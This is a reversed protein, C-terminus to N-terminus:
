DQTLVKKSSVSTKETAARSTDTLVILLWTSTGKKSGSQSTKIQLTWFRQLHNSGISMPQLNPGSILVTQSQISTSTKMNNTRSIQALIVEM